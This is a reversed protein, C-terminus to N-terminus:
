PNRAADGVIVSRSSEMVLAYAVREFIRFVFVLAYRQEPLTTSTRRGDSDHDAANRELTEVMARRAPSNTGPRVM